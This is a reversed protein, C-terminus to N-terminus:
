SSAGATMQKQEEWQKLEDETENLRRLFSPDQHELLVEPKSIEDGNMVSDMDVGVQKILAKAINWRVNDQMSTRMIDLAVDLAEEAHIQAKAIVRVRKRTVREVMRGEIERNFEDLMTQFRNDRIYRNLDVESIHAHAAAETMSMGLALCLAAVRYTQRLRAILKPEDVLQDLDDM